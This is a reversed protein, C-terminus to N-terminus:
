ATAQRLGQTQCPWLGGGVVNEAELEVRALFQAEDEEERMGPPM